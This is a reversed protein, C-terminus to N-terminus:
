RDREFRERAVHHSRVARQVLAAEARDRAVEWEMGRGLVREDWPTGADRPPRRKGNGSGNGTDWPKGHARAGPYGYIPAGVEVATGTPM